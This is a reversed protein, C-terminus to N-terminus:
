RNAFHEFGKPLAETKGARRVVRERPDKTFEGIKTLPPQAVRRAVARLAAARKRPVAFLLEYDDGGSVAASVADVGRATWWDRACSDIPLLAADVVVGVGSATAVQELADALGDSLDMAATAARARGVAVGLFVRPEPRTHKAVCGPDPFRSGPVPFASGAGPERSGTGSQLMELGAAAAGITGSVYIEDGAKAGSRLLWKRPAVEGGATVDVVLPGDTRTINGGIVSVGHRNALAALGDILEEIETEHLSAPLVLSVLAWRPTAAMAALDSLNVALARHGIDAPTSYARSFHVGEVVADTTIVLRENRSAAVVAADDGPGM